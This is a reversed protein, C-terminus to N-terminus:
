SWFYLVVISIGVALALKVLAITGDRRMTMTYPDFRPFRSCWDAGPILRRTRCSEFFAINELRSDAGCGVYLASRPQTLRQAKGALSIIM